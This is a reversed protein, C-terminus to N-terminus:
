LAEHPIKSNEHKVNEPEGNSKVSSFLVNGCGGKKRRYGRATGFGTNDNDKQM